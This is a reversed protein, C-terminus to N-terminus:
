KGERKQELFGAYYERLEAYRAPTATCCALM